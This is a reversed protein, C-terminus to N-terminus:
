EGDDQDSVPICLRHTAGTEGDATFRSVQEDDRDPRGDAYVEAHVGHKEFRLTVLERPDFGLTRIAELMRERPISAPVGTITVSM